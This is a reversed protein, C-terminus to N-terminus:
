TGFAHDEFAVEEGHPLNVHMAMTRWGRQVPGTVPPCCNNTDILTWEHNSDPNEDTFDRCDTAPGGYSKLRLRTLFCPERSKEQWAVGFKESFM